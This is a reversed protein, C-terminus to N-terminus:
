TPRSAGNHRRRGSKRALHSHSPLDACALEEVTTDTVTWASLPPHATLVHRVLSAVGVPAADGSPADVVVVVMAGSPHVRVWREVVVTVRGEADLAKKARDITDGILAAAGERQLENLNTDPPATATVTAAYCV